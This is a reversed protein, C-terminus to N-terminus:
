SPGDLVDFRIDAIVDDVPEGIAECVARLDLWFPWGSEMPIPAVAMMVGVEEDESLRALKYRSLIAMQENVTRRPLRTAGELEAAPLEIQEWGNDRGRKVIVALLGRLRSPFGPWGTLWIPSRTLAPQSRKRM